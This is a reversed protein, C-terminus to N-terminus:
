LIVWISKSLYFDINKNIIFLNNSNFFNNQVELFSKPAIRFVYVTFLSIYFVYNPILKKNKWKKIAKIKQDRYKKGSRRDIFGNGVRQYVLPKEINELRM